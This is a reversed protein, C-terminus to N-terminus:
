EASPTGAKEKAAKMASLLAHLKQRRDKGIEKSQAEMEETVKKHLEQFARDEELLQNSMSERYANRRSTNFRPNKIEYMMVLYEVQLRLFDERTKLEAASHKLLWRHFAKESFERAQVMWRLIIPFSTTFDKNEKQLRELLTKNGAEDDKAVGSSQVAAWLKKGLEVLEEPTAHQASSMSAKVQTESFVYNAQDELREM